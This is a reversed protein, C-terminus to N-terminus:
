AVAVDGKGKRRPIRRSRPMAEGSGPVLDHGRASHETRGETQRWARVHDPAVIPGKTRAPMRLGRETRHLAGASQSKGLREARPRSATRWLISPVENEAGRSRAM